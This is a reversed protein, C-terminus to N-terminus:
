EMGELKNKSLSNFQDITSFMGILKIVRRCFLDFKGFTQMENFSFQKGKPTKELKSKTIHYQEQYAENLKLCSELKRVLEQPDSEWLIDAEEDGTIHMKCNMIMQETIKAFSSTMREPTNYYRAITPLSSPQLWCPPPEPEIECVHQDDQLHLEFKM